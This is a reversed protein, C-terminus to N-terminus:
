GKAPPNDVKLALIADRCDMQAADYGAAANFEATGGADIGIPRHNRLPSDSECVKAAEELTAKRSALWAARAYDSPACEVSYIQRKWWEEFAKDANM